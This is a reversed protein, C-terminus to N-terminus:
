WSMEKRGNSRRRSIIKRGTRAKARALYGHRRKQVRRSPRFTVRRGALAASASFARTQQPQQQQSSLLSTGWSSVSSSSSSSVFSSVSSPILRSSFLPQTPQHRTPTSLLTSSFPRNMPTRMSMTTRTSPLARCRLCLM